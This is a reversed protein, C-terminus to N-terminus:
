CSATPQSAYRPTPCRAGSPGSASSTPAHQADLRRVDRDLGYGELVLVGCADFFEIIEASIPAAGTIALHLSDGFAARVKSLVLRDALDHRRRALAGPPSARGGAGTGAPGRGAGLRLDRAQAAAAGRVDGLVATHIKEFIRPVSPFHTPRAEALEAVIRKPDGRWYVVTGGVDLVVMQTVRALVHALPLFLYAVM